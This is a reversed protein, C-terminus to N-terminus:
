GFGQFNGSPRSLWYKKWYPSSITRTSWQKSADSWANVCNRFGNLLLIPLDPELERLRVAESMTAVALGSLAVGASKLAAAAKAMGHGYANSKVVPYIGSNPSYSRVLALNKKLATLNITAWARRSIPTM